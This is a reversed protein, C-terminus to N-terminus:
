LSQGSMINHNGEVGGWGKAVERACFDGQITKNMHAWLFACVEYIKALIALKFDKENM